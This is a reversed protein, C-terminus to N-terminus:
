FSSEVDTKIIIPKEHPSSINPFELEHNDTRMKEMKCTLYNNFNM